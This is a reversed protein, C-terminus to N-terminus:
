VLMEEDGGLAPEPAAHLGSLGRTGVADLRRPWPDLRHADDVHGLELEHASNAPRKEAM